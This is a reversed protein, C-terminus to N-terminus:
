LELTRMNRKRDDSLKIGIKRIEESTGPWKGFFDMINTHPKETLRVIVKSFSEDKAKLSKLTSYVDDTVSILKTM